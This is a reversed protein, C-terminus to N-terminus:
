KRMIEFSIPHKVRTSKTHDAVLRRLVSTFELSVGSRRGAIFVWENPM